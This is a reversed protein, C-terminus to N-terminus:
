NSTSSNLNLTIKSTMIIKSASELAQTLLIRSTPDIQNYSVMIRSKTVMIYKKHSINDQYKHHIRILNLM